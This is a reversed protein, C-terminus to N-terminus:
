YLMRSMPKSSILEYIMVCNHKAFVGVIRVELVEEQTDVADISKEETEGGANEHLTGKTSQDEPFSKINKEQGLISEEINEPAVHLSEAPNDLINGSKPYELIDEEIPEVDGAKATPDDSKPKGLPVIDTEDKVTQVPKEIVMRVDPSSNNVECHVEGISPATLFNDGEVMSHGDHTHAQTQEENPLKSILISTAQDVLDGGQEERQWM